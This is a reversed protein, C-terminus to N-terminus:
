SGAGAFGEIAGERVEGRENAQWYQGTATDLCTLWAGYGAGTDICTAHGVDLIQGNLQATHGCIVRRGSRHPRIQRFGEWFLWDDTQHIMEVESDLAAHVFLSREDEWFRVTHNFFNWHTAPIRQAWAELGKEPRIDYSELTEWGGCAGWLRASLGDLRADMIMVEHNGRVFVTEHSGRLELLQDVVQCSAPGRDIYDGLFVIRDESRPVVRALLAQLASSCGHIDGIALTRM